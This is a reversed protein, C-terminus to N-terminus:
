LWNSQYEHMVKLVASEWYKLEKKIIIVKNRYHKEMNSHEIGSFLLFTFIYLFYAYHVDLVLVFCMYM